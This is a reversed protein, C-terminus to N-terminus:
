GRIEARGLAARVAERMAVLAEDRAAPSDDRVHLEIGDAVPLRRWALSRQHDDLRQLRMTHRAEGARTEQDIFSHTVLKDLPHASIYGFQANAIRALLRGLDSRYNMGALEFPDTGIDLAGLGVPRFHEPAAPNMASAIEVKLWGHEGADALVVLNDALFYEPWDENELSEGVILICDSQRVARGVPKTPDAVALFRMRLRHSFANAGAEDPHIGESYPIQRRRESTSTLRSNAALSALPAEFEEAVDLVHDDGRLGELWAEAM